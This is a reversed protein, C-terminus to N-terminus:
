REHRIEGSTKSIRLALIIVFLFPWLSRFVSEVSTEKTLKKIKSQEEVADNYYSLQKRVEDIVEALSAQKPAPPNFDDFELKKYNQHTEKKFAVGFNKFWECTSDFEAQVQDFNNPVYSGKIFTRCIYQPPESIYLNFFIDHMTQVRNDTIEMIVTASQRRLDSSLSVVSLFAVSLWLYDIYKWQRKSFNRPWVFLFHFIVLAIIFIICLGLFPNYPEYIM